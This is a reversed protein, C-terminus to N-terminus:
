RQFVGTHLNAEHLGGHLKLRQSLSSLMVQWTKDLDPGKAFILHEHVCMCKSTCIGNCNPDTLM